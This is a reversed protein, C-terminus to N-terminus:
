GGTFAGSGANGYFENTVLDYMGFMGSPNKCPVFNRILVGNDHIKCSYIKLKAYGSLAGSANKFCCIPLTNTIQFAGYTHTVEAGGDLSTKNKNRVVMHRGYPTTTSVDALADTYYRSAYGALNSKVRFAYYQSNNNVSAIHHDTGTNTELFDFDIEVGTDQNPKFGTDIYQSGSSEIYSLATYGDPLGEVLGTFM